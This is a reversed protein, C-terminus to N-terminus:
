DDVGRDRLRTYPYVDIINAQMFEGKSRANLLGKYESSPVNEYQYVQGTNFVVEMTRTKRDYGVARLM